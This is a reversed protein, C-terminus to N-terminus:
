KSALDFYDKVDIKLLSYSLLEGAFNIPLSGSDRYQSAQQFWILPERVETAAVLRELVVKLFPIPWDDKPKHANILGNFCRM